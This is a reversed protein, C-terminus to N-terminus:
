EGPDMFYCDNKERLNVLVSEHFVHGSRCGEIKRLVTIKVKMTPKPFPTIQTRLRQVNRSCFDGSETATAEFPQSTARVVSSPLTLSLPSCAMEV